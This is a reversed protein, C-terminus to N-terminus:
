GERAAASGESVSEEPSKALHPLHIHLSIHNQPWPKQPEVVVAAVHVVVFVVVVVVFVHFLTVHWDETVFAPAPYLPLPLLQYVDSLLLLWGIALKLDLM